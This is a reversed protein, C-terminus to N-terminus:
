EVITTGYFMVSEVNDPNTFGMTYAFSATMSDNMNSALRPHLITGDNLVIAVADAAHIDYPFPNSFYDAEILFEISTAGLMVRVNNGEFEGDIMRTELVNQGSVTFEWNGNIAYKARSGNWVLTLDDPSLDGIAIYSTRIETNDSASVGNGWIIEGDPKEVGLFADGWGYVTADSGRFAITLMGDSLTIGTVEIFEAGPVIVPADISLHEGIKFETPQAEYYYSIDSAIKVIQITAGDADVPTIFLSAIATNKDILEVSVDGTSLPYEMLGSRTLFLLSDSLRTGTPDTIRLELYMGSRAPELFAAIPEVTIEDESLPEYPQVAIDDGTQIYPTAEKNRFISDFITSFDIIGSVALATTALAFILVVAAAAIAFRKTFHRPAYNDAAIASNHIKSMTLEKIRDASWEENPYAGSTGQIAKM